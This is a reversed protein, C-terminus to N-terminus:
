LSPRGQQRPRLHLRGNRSELFDPLGSHTPHSPQGIQANSSSRATRSFLRLMQEQFPYVRIGLPLPAGRWCKREIGVSRRDARNHSIGSPVLRGAHYLLRGDCPVPNGAIPTRHIHNRCDHELAREGQQMSPPNLHVEIDPKTSSFDEAWKVSPPMAYPNEWRMSTHFGKEDYWNRDQSYDRAWRAQERGEDTRLILKFGCDDIRVWSHEFPATEWEPNVKWRMRTHFGGRDDYWDKDGLEDRVFAPVALARNGTRMFEQAQEFNAFRLSPYPIASRWSM